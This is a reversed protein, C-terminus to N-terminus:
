LSNSLARLSSPLLVKSQDPDVDVVAFSKTVKDIVAKSSEFSDAATQFRLEYLRNSAAGLTTWLVRDWEVGYDRMMEESTAVYANKSGYSTIRIAIDYYTRNNAGERSASSIIKGERRIGLRTSMFERVLYKDLLLDAADAATAGFDTVSDYRSSSPSSIDVFLNEDINRPNRLFIDNGSSTVGIWGEPYVFSYGDIKDVQLRYGPPPAAFARAEAPGASLVLSSLSDGAVVAAALALGGGFVSRRSAGQVGCVQSSAAPQVNPQESAM